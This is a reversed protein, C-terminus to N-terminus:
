QTRRTMNGAIARMEKTIGPLRDLQALGMAALGYGDATNNSLSTHAWRKLVWMMMQDKQVNGKGTVFKKVESARPDFWALGDLFLMFRLLGGIEVLPITSSPNKGLSYGEVVIRDPNVSHILEMIETVVARARVMGTTKPKIETELLLEPVPTTNERLIVIGTASCSLDIGFSTLQPVEPM